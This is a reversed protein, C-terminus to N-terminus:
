YGLGLYEGFGLYDFHPGKVMCILAALWRYPVVCEYGTARRTNFVVYAM